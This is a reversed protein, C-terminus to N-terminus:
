KLSWDSAIMFHIIGSGKTGRGLPDRARPVLNAVGSIHIHMNFFKKFGKQFPKLLLPHAVAHVSCSQDNSSM